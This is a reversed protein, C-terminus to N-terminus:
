MPGLPPFHELRIEVKKTTGNSEYEAVIRLMMNFSSTFKMGPRNWIARADDESGPEIYKWGHQVLTAKYYDRIDEFSADVTYTTTHAEIGSYKPKSRVTEIQTAGPYVLLKDTEPWRQESLYIVTGGELRSNTAIHLHWGWPLIGAKDQWVYDRWMDAPALGDSPTTWGGNLLATHYFALVQEISDSTTIQMSHGIPNSETIVNMEGEVNPYPPIRDLDPVNDLKPVNEYTGNVLAIYRTTIDSQDSGKLLNAAVLGLLFSIVILTAVVLVKRM